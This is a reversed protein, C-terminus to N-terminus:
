LWEESWAYAENWSFGGYNQPVYMWKHHYVHPDKKMPTFKNKKEWREKSGPGKISWSDGMVPDRYLDFEQCQIFTVDVFNPNSTRDYRILDFRFDFPLEKARAAVVNMDIKHPILSAYDRHVYVSRDFYRGCPRILHQGFREM